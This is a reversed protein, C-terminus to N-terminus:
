QKRQSEQSDIIEYEVDVVRKEKDAQRQQKRQQRELSGAMYKFRLKILLKVLPIAVVLTLAAVIGAAFFLTLVGLAVVIFLLIRIYQGM